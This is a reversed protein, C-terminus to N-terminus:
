SKWKIITIMFQWNYSSCDITITVITILTYEFDLSVDLTFNKAFIIVAKGNNVIEM